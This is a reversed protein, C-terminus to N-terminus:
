PEARETAEYRQCKRAETNRDIAAVLAAGVHYIATTVALAPSVIEKAETAQAERWLRDLDRATITVGGGGEAAGAAGAGAAGGSPKSQVDLVPAVEHEYQRVRAPPRM